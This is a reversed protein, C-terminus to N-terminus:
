EEELFQHGLVIKEDYPTPWCALFGRDLGGLETLGDADDFASGDDAADGGVGAGDGALGEAFRNEIERPEALAVEVSGAITQFLRDRDFIERKAGVVDDLVFNLNHLVLHRTVADIQDK